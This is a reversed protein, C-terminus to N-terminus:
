RCRIHVSGGNGVGSTYAAGMVSVSKDIKAGGGGGGGTVLM